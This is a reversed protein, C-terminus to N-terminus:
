DSTLLRLGQEVPTAEPKISWFVSRPGSTTRRADFEGLDPAIVVRGPRVM